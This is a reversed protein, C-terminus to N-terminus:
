VAILDNFSKKEDREAKVQDWLEKFKLVKIPKEMVANAGARKCLAVDDPHVDSSMIFIVLPKEIESRLRVTTEIGNMVPMLRDMLIVDFHQTKAREIAEKGSACQQVDIADKNLEIAVLRRIMAQDDVVLVSIGGTDLEISDFKFGCSRELEFQIQEFRFPKAIFAGFTDKCMKIKEDDVVSASIALIPTKAHHEFQRIKRTAEIGDMEPMSIDMLIVALDTMQALKIAQQGSNAEYITTFGLDSLFRSLVRRNFDVDDVILIPRHCFEVRVRVIDHVFKEPLSIEVIPCTLTFIFESGVGFESTVTISGKMLTALESAIFLGLGTGGAKKVGVQEYKQFLTPIDSPLIGCGSDAVGIRITSETKTRQVVKADLKVIGEDTFKVANSLLNVLVQRLRLPDILVTKPLDPSITFKLQISKELCQPFFHTAIDKLLDAIATPVPDLSFKGAEMKSVDLFDSILDLLHLGSKSISEVFERRDGTISL